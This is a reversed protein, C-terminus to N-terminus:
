EMQVGFSAVMGTGSHYLPCGALFGTQDMAIAQGMGVKNVHAGTHTFVGERDWDTWDRHYVSVEGYSGNAGPAGIALFASDIGVAAGLQAGTTNGSFTEEEDIDWGDIRYVWARGAKVKGGVTASGCGLSLLTDGHGGEQVAVSLAGACSETVDGWYQGLDKGVRAFVAACGGERSGLVIWDGNASVTYGMGPCRAGEELLRGESFTAGMSVYRHAKGMQRGTGPTGVVLVREGTQATTLALSEGYTSDADSFVQYQSFGKHGSKYVVVTSTGSAGHSPASVAVYPGAIGVGWGYNHVGSPASLAQVFSWHSGNDKTHYIYAAGAGPAGVVAYGGGLAVSSGFADHGSSYADTINSRWYVGERASVVAALCLALLLVRM